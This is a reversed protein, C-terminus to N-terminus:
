EKKILKQTKEYFGDLEKKYDSEPYESIFNFYDDVFELYRDHQKAAVSLQAFKYSSMATFYLIKERYINDADEKLVNKFAYRAALYDEMHYYLWASNFAKEDLRQNLNTQMDLCQQKYESEPNEMLFQNIAILARHTPTQDLEYRHTERYLCDIMLYNSKETFPSQPFVEIFQSFNSEATVYDHFNYNSMAWYFQVTDDQATGKTAISLSEFMEAAKGFKGADYLDFAAKYKAPIDYGQLLSEFKNNCSALALLALLSITITKFRM